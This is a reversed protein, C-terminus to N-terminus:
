HDEHTEHAMNMYVVSLMMFIYAQLTIILIHFVAWVFALIFQMVSVMIGGATFFDSFTYNVTLVAILIFILEGAYMNGFLRLSLSVPKALTEVLNLFLNPGALLIKGLWGNAAFPHTVFEKLYGLVTPKKVTFSYYFVLLMVGFSMGFVINLDTSPVIKMYEIGVLTGLWPVLDIPLLDMFNMLWVWIFISLAMPAVLKSSGTFVDNVQTNIFGLIMEVFNQTKSPVGATAKKAVSRFFLLYIVALLITYFVSDANITWFSSGEVLEQTNNVLHHSIYDGASGSNEGSAM